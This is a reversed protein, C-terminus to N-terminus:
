RPRKASKNRQRQLLANLPMDDEDSDTDGVVALSENGGTAPSRSGNGELSSGKNATSAHEGEASDKPEEKDDQWAEKWSPPLGPGSNANGYDSKKTGKPWRRPGRGTGRPSSRRVTPRGMGDYETTGQLEPTAEDENLLEDDNSDTGLCMSSGGTGGKLFEPNARASKEPPTEPIMPSSTKAALGARSRIKLTVNTPVKRRELSAHLHQTKHSSREVTESRMDGHEERQTPEAASSDSTIHYVIGNDKKALEKGKTQDQEEEIPEDDPAEAHSLSSMLEPLSPHEEKGSNAEGHANRNRIDALTSCGVKPLPMTKRANPANEDSMADEEELSPNNVLDTQSAKTSKADSLGSPGEGALQMVSRKAHYCAAAQQAEQVAANREFATM